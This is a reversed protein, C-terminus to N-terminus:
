VAPGRLVAKEDLTLDDLYSAYKDLFASPSADFESGLNTAFEFDEYEQESLEQQAQKKAYEVLDIAKSRIEAHKGM